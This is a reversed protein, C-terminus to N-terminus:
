PGRPLTRGGPGRPQPGGSGAAPRVPPVSEDLIEFDGSLSVVEGRWFGKPKGLGGFCSYAIVLRYVGAPPDTPPALRTGGPLLPRAPATRFGKLAYGGAGLRLPMSFSQGSELARSAEDKPPMPAVIESHFNPCNVQGRFGDLAQVGAIAYPVPRLARLVQRQASVNKFTITFELPEGVKFRTKAARVALLLGAAERDTPPRLWTPSVGLEVPPTRFEGQWRRAGTASPQGELRGVVTLLYRGQPLGMLATPGDGVWANLMFRHTHSQGPALVLDAWREGPDPLPRQCQARAILPAGHGSVAARFTLALGHSGGGLTLPVDSVNKFIVQVELPNDTRVVGYPLGLTVSLGDSEFPKSQRPADNPVVPGAPAPTAARAPPGPPAGAGPGSAGRAPALAAMGRGGAIVALAAMLSVIGGPTHDM